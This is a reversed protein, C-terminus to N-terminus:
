VILRSDVVFLRIKLEFIVLFQGNVVMFRCLLILIAQNPASAKAVLALM